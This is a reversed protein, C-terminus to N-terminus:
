CWGAWTTSYALAPPRAAGCPRPCCCRPLAVPRILATKLDTYTKKQSGEGTSLPQPHPQAPRAMYVSRFNARPYVNALQALAAPATALVRAQTTFLLAYRGGVAGNAALSFSIPATATALDTYTGTLADCLYVHYGTPLNTLNDVSLAYTGTTAMALRLPLLADTGILAPLGNIALPEATASETALLLGNFGNLYRADFARDFGATASSEFYVVTQTRATAAANRLGLTLQPRTDATGRQVQTTNFTILREENTFSVSGTQGAVTRVFFGQALPLVNTRGNMSQGNVYSTYTGTYRDTSKFVYLADGVNTLRGNARMLNWDLPSPYPNGCLHYGSEAQNGRTLPGATYPGNNLNGVFDVLASATINM